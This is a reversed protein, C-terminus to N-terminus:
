CLFMADGFSFFRYRRVIAEAYASKLRAIGEGSRGSRHEIFAGVLLLLTSRPLHFNTILADVMRFPFGPMIYLDSEGGTAALDPSRALHELTRVVTTGVAVVRGGARRTAMIAELTAEPVHYREAHMVHDRVNEVSVPKFTGPGVHLTVAARSVGRAELTALLDPTFHLGATPAAIAGAERAYVTQYRDPDHSRERIYPPLPLEGHRALVAEFSDGEWTLQLVRSGDEEVGVVTARFDPGFTLESGIRIKRGPRVMALWRDDALPRVLLVEAHGGTERTAHLRAPIVRTDNVVLLDGPRLLDAIDRFVLHDRRDASVDWAFLRSEDRRDSPQQAILSEDLPFDLESLLM